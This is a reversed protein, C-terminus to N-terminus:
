AVAIQYSVDRDNSFSKLVTMLMSNKKEKELKVRDNADMLM